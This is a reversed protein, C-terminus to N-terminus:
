IVLSGCILQKELIFIHRIIHPCNHQHGGALQEEELSDQSSSFCGQRSLVQTCIDMLRDM